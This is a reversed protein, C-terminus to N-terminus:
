WTAQQVLSLLLKIAFSAIATILLYLLFYLLSSFTIEKGFFGETGIHTESKADPSTCHKSKCPFKSETLFRRKDQLYNM